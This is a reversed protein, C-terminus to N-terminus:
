MKRLNTAPGDTLGELPNGRQYAHDMNHLPATMILFILTVPDM